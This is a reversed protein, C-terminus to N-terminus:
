PTVLQDLQQMLGDAPGVVQYTIRMDSLRIAMTSPFSNAPYYPALAQTPDPTM